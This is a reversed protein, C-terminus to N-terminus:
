HTDQAIRVFLITLWDVNGNRIAVDQLLKVLGAIRPDVSEVGVDVADECGRASRCRGGAVSTAKETARVFSRYLSGAIGVDWLVVGGIGSLKSKETEPRVRVVAKVVQWDDLWKVLDVVGDSTLPGAFAALPGTGFHVVVELVRYVDVTVCEGDWEFAM